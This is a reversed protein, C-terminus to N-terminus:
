VCVTGDGRLAKTPMAEWVLKWSGLQFIFCWIDTFNTEFKLLDFGRWLRLAGRNFVKQRCNQVCMLCLVLQLKESIGFIPWVPYDRVESTECVQKTSVCTATRYIMYIRLSVATLKEEV